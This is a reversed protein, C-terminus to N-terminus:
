QTLRFVYPEHVASKPICKQAKEYANKSIFFLFNSCFITYEGAKSRFIRIRLEYLNVMHICTDAM